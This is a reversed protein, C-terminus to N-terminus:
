GEQTVTKESIEVRTGVLKVKESHPAFQTHILNPLRQNEQVRRAVSEGLSNFGIRSGDDLLAFNPVNHQFDKM